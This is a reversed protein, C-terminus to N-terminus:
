ARAKARIVVEGSRGWPGEVSTIDYDAGRIVLRHRRPCAEALGDCARARVKVPSEQAVAFAEWYERGALGEVSAMVYIVHRRREVQGGLGDSEWGVEVLEVLETLDASRLRKRAM